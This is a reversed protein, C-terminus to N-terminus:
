LSNAKLDIEIADFIMGEDRKLNIALAKPQNLKPDKDNILVRVGREIGM